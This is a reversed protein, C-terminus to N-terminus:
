FPIPIAKLTREALRRKIEEFQTPTWFKVARETRTWQIGLENVILDVTVSFGFAENMKGINIWAHEPETKLAGSVTVNGVITVEAPLDVSLTQVGGTQDVYRGGEGNRHGAAQEYLELSSSLISEAAASAVPAGAQGLKNLDSEAQERQRRGDEDQRRREAAAEDDIRKQDAAAQRDREAQADREAKERAEQEAKLKAAEEARIKERAAEAAEEAKRKTEAEHDSIRTKITLALHDTAYHILAAADNFLFRFEAKENILKANEAMRDAIETAAIKVRALEVGLANSMSEFSRKNKIQAPFDTAIAPLAYPSLLANKSDVFAKWEAATEGVLETKREVERKEVLKTQELRIQRTEEKIADVTKFLKDISETQSLAHQKAAELAKEQEDCWKIAQKADAFDQDTNLTRNISGLVTRAIEAWRDINSEEVAGKVLIRLAPLSDMVKGISKAETPAPPTWALRDAHFQRWTSAIKQPWGAGPDVWLHLTNERTGDSMTFLLREAGSALIVQQCQPEHKEPLFGASILDADAANWQKCEWAIRGSMTLGDCSAILPAGDVVGDVRYVAPYLEDGGLEDEAFPRALAEVAHGNDLVHEQFWDSYEKPIGSAKRALLEDRTVYPNIGMAASLESAGYGTQRLAMWELSGQPHNVLTRTIM